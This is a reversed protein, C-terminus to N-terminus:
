REAFLESIEAVSVARKAWADITDIDTCALIFDRDVARMVIHRLTLIRIIAEVRGSLFGRRYGEDFGTRYAEDRLRSFHASSYTGM